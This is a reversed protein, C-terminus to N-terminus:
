FAFFTGSGAFIARGFVVNIGTYFSKFFNGTKAQQKFADRM